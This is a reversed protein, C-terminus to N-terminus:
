HLYIDETLCRWKEPSARRTKKLDCARSCGDLGALRETRYAELAWGSEGGGVRGATRIMTHDELCGVDALAAVDAMAVGPELFPQRDEVVEHVRGHQSRGAGELFLGSSHFRSLCLRTTELPTKM